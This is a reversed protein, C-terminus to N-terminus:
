PVTHDSYKAPELAPSAHKSCTPMHWLCLLSVRAHVLYTALPQYAVLLFMDSQLAPSAGRISLSRRDKAEDIWYNRSVSLLPSLINHILGWWVTCSRYPHSSAPCQPGPMVACKDTSSLQTFQTCLQLSVGSANSDIHLGLTTGGRFTKGMMNRLRLSLSLFM